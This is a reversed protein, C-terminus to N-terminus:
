IQYLYISPLKQKKDQPWVKVPTMSQIKFTHSIIRTGKGCEKKFKEALKDMTDPLLYCFIVDADGIDARFFSKLRINVKSNNVWKNLWALIVPLPAIEFGTGIIKARKEAEILFRADGCGLDYVKEGPKLDAKDLVYDVVRKRTPVFPVIYFINILVTSVLVLTFLFSFM